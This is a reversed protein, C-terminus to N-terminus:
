PIVRDHNLHTIFHGTSLGNAQDSTGTKGRASMEVEFPPDIALCFIGIMTWTSLPFAGPNYLADVAGKRSTQAFVFSGLRAFVLAPNKVFGSRPLNKGGLALFKGVAPLQFVATGPGPLGVDDAPNEHASFAQTVRSVQTKL